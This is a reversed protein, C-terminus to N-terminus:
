LFILTYFSEVFLTDSTSSNNNVIFDDPNISSCHSKLWAMADTGNDQQNNQIVFQESQNHACADTKNSAISYCLIFHIM